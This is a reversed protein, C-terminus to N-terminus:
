TAAKQNAARVLTVCTDRIMKKAFETDLQDEAISSFVLEVARKAVLQIEPDPEVVVVKLISNGPYKQLLEDFTSGEDRPQAEGTPQTFKTSINPSLVNRMAERMEVADIARGAEAQQETADVMSDYSSALSDIAIELKEEILMEAGGDARYAAEFVDLLIQEWEDSLSLTRSPM